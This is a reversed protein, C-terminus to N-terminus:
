EVIFCDSDTSILLIQEQHTDWALFDLPTERKLPHQLEQAGLESGSGLAAAIHTGPRWTVPPGNRQHVPMISNNSM